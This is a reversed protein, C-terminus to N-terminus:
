ITLALSFGAHFPRTGVAPLAVCCGREPTFGFLRREFPLLLAALRVSLIGVGAGGIVDTLTHRSAAVRWLGVGTAVAYGAVGPWLGCSERLLEAGMFARAAHGSPFSHNDSGDPRPSRVIHKTSQVIIEDILAATVTLCARERWDYCASRWVGDPLLMAAAPLFQLIDCAANDGHGGIKDTVERNVRGLWGNSVGFGGVAILAAPAIYERVRFREQAVCPTAAAATETAAAASDPRLSEPGGQAMASLALVLASILTLLRRSM